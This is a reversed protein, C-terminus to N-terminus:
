DSLVSKVRNRVQASLSKGTTSFMLAQSVSDGSKPSATKTKAQVKSTQIAQLNGDEHEGPMRQLFLPSNLKSQADPEKEDDSSPAIGSNPMRM